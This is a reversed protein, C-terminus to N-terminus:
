TVPKYSVEAELKTLEKAIPDESLNNAIDILQQNSLDGPKQLEKVYDVAHQHPFGAEKFASVVSSDTIGDPSKAEQQPLEAPKKFKESYQKVVGSFKDKITTIFLKIKENLELEGNASVIEPLETQSINKTTSHPLPYKPCYKMGDYLNNRPRVQM